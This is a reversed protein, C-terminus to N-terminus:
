IQLRKDANYCSQTDMKVTTNKKRWNYKVNSRAYQVYLMYFLVM